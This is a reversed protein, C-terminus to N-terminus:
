ATTEPRTRISFDQLGGYGNFCISGAGIGGLPMAVQTAYEGSFSRQPGPNLLDDERYPSPSPELAAALSSGPQAAATGAVAGLAASSAAALFERRTPEKSSSNSSSTESSSSM